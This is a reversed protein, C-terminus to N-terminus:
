GTHFGFRPPPRPRPVPVRLRVERRCGSEAALHESPRDSSSSTGDSSLDVGLGSSLRKNHIALRLEEKVMPTFNTFDELTLTAPPSLCPVLASCSIDALSPGSHQLMMRSLFAPLTLGPPPEPIVGAVKSTETRM